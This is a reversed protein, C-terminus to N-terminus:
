TLKSANSSGQFCSNPPTSGYQPINSLSRFRLFIVIGVQAYFCVAHSSDHPPPLHDQGLPGIVLRRTIIFQLATIVFKISRPGKTLMCIKDSAAGRCKPLSARQIKSERDGCKSKSYFPRHAILPQSEIPTYREIAVQCKGRASYQAMNLLALSRGLGFNM